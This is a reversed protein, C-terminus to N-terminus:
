DILPEYPQCRWCTWADYPKGPQPILRGYRRAKESEILVRCKCRALRARGRLLESSEAQTWSDIVGDAIFAADPFTM